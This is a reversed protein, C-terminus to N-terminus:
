TITEGSRRDFARSQRIQCGNLSTSQQDTGSSRAAKSAADSWKGTVSSISRQGKSLPPLAGVHAKHFVSHDSKGNDKGSRGNPGILGMLDGQNVTLDFNLLAQLGGFAKSLGKIELIPEM